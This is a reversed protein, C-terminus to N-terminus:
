ATHAVIVDALEAAAIRARAGDSTQIGLVGVQEDEGLVLMPWPDDPRYRMGTIASWAVRRVRFVNHLVLGETTATARSSAFAALTVVVLALCALVTLRQPWSFAHTVAAPLAVWAIVAAVSVLTAVVAPM